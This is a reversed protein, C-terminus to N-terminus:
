EVMQGAPDSAMERQAIEDLLSWVRGPEMPVDPDNLLRDLETLKRSYEADTM